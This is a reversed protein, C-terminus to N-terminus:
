CGTKMRREEKKKKEGGEKGRLPVSVLPFFSFLFVFISFEKAGVSWTLLRNENKTRREERKEGGEKGRL